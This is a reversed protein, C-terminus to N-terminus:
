FYNLIPMNYADKNDDTIIRVLDVIQWIFVGFIVIIITCYEIWTFINAKSKIINDFGCLIFPLKFLVLLLITLYVFAKVFAYFYFGLYVNGAFLLCFELIFAIFQNKQYYGCVLVEGNHFKFNLFRPFCRCIKENKGTLCQGKPAVCRKTNCKGKFIFNHYRSLNYSNDYAEEEFDYYYVELERTQNESKFTKLKNEFNLIKKDKDISNNEQNTYNTNNKLKFNNEKRKKVKILAKDEYIINSLLSNIGIKPTNTEFSKKNEISIKNTDKHVETKNNIMFKDKSNEEYNINLNTRNHNLIDYVSDSAILKQKNFYSKTLLLTRFMIFFCFITKILKM